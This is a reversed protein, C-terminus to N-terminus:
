RSFALPNKRAFFYPLINSSMKSAPRLIHVSAVPAVFRFEVSVSNKTHPQGTTTQPNAIFRPGIATILSVKASKRGRTQYRQGSAGNHARSIRAVDRTRWTTTHAPESSILAAQPAAVSRISLRRGRDHSPHGGQTKERSVCVAPQFSARPGTNRLQDIARYFQRLGCAGPTRVM